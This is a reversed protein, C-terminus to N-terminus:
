LWSRDQVYRQLTEHLKQFTEIKRYVVERGRIIVDIVGPIALVLGASEIVGTMITEASLSLHQTIPSYRAWYKRTHAPLV